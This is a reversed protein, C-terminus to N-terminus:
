RHHVMLDAQYCWVESKWRLLPGNIPNKDDDLDSRSTPSRLSQAPRPGTDDVVNRIDALIRNRVSQTATEAHRNCSWLLGQDSMYKQSFFFFFFCFFFCLRDHIDALTCLFLLLCSETTKSHISERCFEFNTM